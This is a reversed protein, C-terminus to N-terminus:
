LVELDAISLVAKAIRCDRIRQIIKVAGACAMVRFHGHKTGFLRQIGDHVKCMLVGDGMHYNTLALRVHM